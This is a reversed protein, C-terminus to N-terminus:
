RVDQTDKRWPAIAHETWKLAEVMAVGITSFMLVGFLVTPTDFSQGATGILWGLGATSGFLESVVVGTLARGIGLRLGVIVSPLAAPLLIKTFVQARSCNFAAAVELLNADAARIGVFANLLIPFIAVSFIIAIKSSIGVGFVLIFFPILAVLPSSYFFSVWPDLYDQAARNTAMLFGLAVGVLTALGFGAVFEVSSVALHRWLEGSVALEWGAALVKSLPAFLIPSTVVYRGVIEWLILVGVISVVARRRSRRAVTAPPEPMRAMVADIRQSQQPVGPVITSTM